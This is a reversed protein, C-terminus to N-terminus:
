RSAKLQVNETKSGYFVKFPLCITMPFLFPVALVQTGSLTVQILLILIRCRSRLLYQSSDRKIVSTVGELTSSGLSTMKPSM